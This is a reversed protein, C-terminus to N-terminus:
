HDRRLELRSARRQTRERAVAARLLVILASREQELKVLRARLRKSDLSGITHLLESRMIAMM